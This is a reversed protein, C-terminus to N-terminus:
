LVVLGRSVAELANLEFSGGRSFMLLVDNADYVEALQRESFFGALKDCRLEDLERSFGGGKVMLWVDSYMHQIEKMVKVV